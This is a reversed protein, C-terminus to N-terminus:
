IGNVLMSALHGAMTPLLTVMRVKVRLTVHACFCIKRSCCNLTAVYANHHNYLPSVLPIGVVENITSLIAFHDGSQALNDIVGITM